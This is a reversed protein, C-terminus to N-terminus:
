AWLAQPRWVALLIPQAEEVTVLFLPAQGPAQPHWRVSLIRRPSPLQARPRAEPGHADLRYVLVVSRVPVAAPRTAAAGDEDEPRSPCVVALCDGLLAASPRFLSYECCLRRQLLDVVRLVGM